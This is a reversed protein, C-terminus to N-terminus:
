VLSFVFFLSLHYGWCCATSTHTSAGGRLGRLVEHFRPPVTTSGKHFRVEPGDRVGSGIQASVGFSGAPSFAAPVPRNAVSGGLTGWSGADRRGLRPEQHVDLWHLLMEAATMRQLM